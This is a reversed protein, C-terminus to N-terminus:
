KPAPSSRTTRSTATRALSPLLSYTVWAFTKRFSQSAPSTEFDFGMRQENADGEPGMLQQARRLLSGVLDPDILRPLLIWGNEWFQEIETRTVQRIEPVDTGASRQAAGTDGPAHQISM